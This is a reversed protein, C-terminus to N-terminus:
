GFMGFLAVGVAVSVNLSEKAGRMPIEAIGDAADLIDRSIGGIENGVILLIKSNDSNERHTRAYVDRYDAARSDQELAIVEGDFKRIFEIPSGELKNWAVSNEAGLAVKTLDARHRGFRDVPAPTYGSLFIKVVGFADATRFISGVNHISRINHLLLSVEPESAM